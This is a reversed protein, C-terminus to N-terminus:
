NVYLPNSVVLKEILWFPFLQAGKIVLVYTDLDMPVAHVFAMYFSSHFLSSSYVLSFLFLQSSEDGLKNVM